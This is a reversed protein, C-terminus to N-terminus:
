PLLTLKTLEVEKMKKGTAGEFEVLAATPKMGVITGETMKGMLKFAVRDGVKMETGTISAPAVDAAGAKGWVDGQVKVWNGNSKVYVAANMLFEGNPHKRVAQDIAEQMADDHKTKAKAEVNRLLLQHETARDINRTSVMTLSGVRRYQCGGAAMAVLVLPLLYRM